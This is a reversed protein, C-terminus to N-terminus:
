HTAPKLMAEVRALLDAKRFPKELSGCGCDSLFRRTGANLTDGTVFLIRQSLWPHRASVERWLVAGDIDPMRLDSVIADFHAEGLIELALAGSEASAVEYGADELMTRVLDVIEVEDDVVLVRQGTGPLNDAPPAPPSTQVADARLPLSLRFSAGSSTSELQLDGGHDRAVSRSVSLGLGTGSGEGKTTFYPDFIRDRLPEPVGPGNDAVRLWLRRARGPREAEIGTELHVERPAPQGSLAQQANVMLNLVVQGLRDGDADVEPLGDALALALRVGSARLSYQLLEAAGRVLDNLPVRRREAPRQRAMNLFTRVIRGCREAAEHIRRADSQLPTGATKDELLSARGMVVALPNNLEHAVGALLSGMATLKESQRLADRQREIVEAAREQESVDNISATYYTVGAVDTKWLVMQMPFETGDVRQAHMRLPQGIVRPAGGQAMRLMGAQHASRHREPVMVDAVTRGLAQDRALGFMAQAAPNFEVIVGRADTTVIASLAKDVITAKLQEARELAQGRESLQQKTRMSETLDRGMVISAVVEGGPAYPLIVEELYHRGLRPHDRWGEWRMAEGQELVRHALPQYGQFVAEGLVEAVSCGVLEHAQLGFADLATKNAFVYRYAKDVVVVRGPLRDLLLALVKLDPAPLGDLGPPVGGPLMEVREYPQDVQLPALKGPM